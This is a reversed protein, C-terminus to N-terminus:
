DNSKRRPVPRNDIGDLYKELQKKSLKYIKVENDYESKYKHKLSKAENDWCGLKLNVPVIFDETLKM